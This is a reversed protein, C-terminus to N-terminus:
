KTNQFPYGQSTLTLSVGSLAVAGSLNSVAPCSTISYGGACNGLNLVQELNQSGGTGGGTTELVGADLAALYSM